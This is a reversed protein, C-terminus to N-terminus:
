RVTKLLIIKKPRGIDRGDEDRGSKIAICDDGTDFYSDKIWVNKCAEPDFGDNNPGHSIVKVREILVNECLVPNLNWM